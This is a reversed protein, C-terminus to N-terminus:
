ISSFLYAFSYVLSFSLYELPSFPLYMEVPLTAYSFQQTKLRKIHIFRHAKCSLTWVQEVRACAQMKAIHKQLSVVLCMKCCNSVCNQVNRDSSVFAVRQECWPNTPDAVQSSTATTTIYLANSRLAAESPKVACGLVSPGNHKLFWPRELCQLPPILLQGSWLM